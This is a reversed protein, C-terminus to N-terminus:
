AVGRGVTPNEVYTCNFAEAKTPPFVLTFTYLEKIDSIVPYLKSEEKMKQREEPSASHNTNIPYILLLGREPPRYDNRVLTPKLGNQKVYESIRDTKIKDGLDILEENMISVNKLRDFSDGSYRPSQRRDVATVNMGPGLEILKDDEHKNKSMIAVSWQTLEGMHALKNIYDILLSNSLKIEEKVIRYKKLFNIIPDVPVNKYLLCNKFELYPPPQRYGGTELKLALHKVAKANNAAWEEDDLKVLTASIKQGSYTHSSITANNKSKKLTIELEDHARIKLAMDLPTENNEVMREIDERLEHEVTALHHFNAEMQSTVFIRTLHLYNPRYGFWRGMQLLTDYGRSNRHFYSVTLGEITLGRSLKSGGIVIAWTKPETFSLSNKSKSNIELVVMENLFIELCELMDAFSGLSEKSFANDGMTPEFDQKWVKELENIADTHKAEFMAKFTNVHNNVSKTLVYHDDTLASTHVLMTINKQLDPRRIEGSKRIREAASIFFTTIATKLSAPIEMEGINVEDEDEIAESLDIHRILNLPQVVEGEATVRGFLKEAGVYTEPAKLAVIFDRPFLDEEDDANLLINAFPTATYGVYSTPARDGLFTLLEVILGNTKTRENDRRSENLSAQDLEDDIILVLS